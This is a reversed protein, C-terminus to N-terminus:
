TAQHFASVGDRFITFLMIALVTLSLAIAIAIGYAKFRTEAANRRKMRADSALLSRSSPRPAAPPPASIDTM